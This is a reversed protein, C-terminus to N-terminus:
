VTDAHVDCSEEAIDAHADNGRAAGHAVTLKIGLFVHTRKGYCWRWLQVPSSVVSILTTEVAGAAPGSQAHFCM